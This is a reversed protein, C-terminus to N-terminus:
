FPTGPTFHIEEVPAAENALRSETAFQTENWAVDFLNQVIIGARLRKTIDYSVNLDAVFYGEAIISNDENAPRDAIYKYGMSANFGKYDKLVLSGNSTWKPALPIFDEGDVENIARAHAYNLNANLFVYDGLQYQFGYDFGYRRTEGSPEVIGADGVYVFEQELYLHWLAGNMVLRDTLKTVFGLDSNFSRPLIDDVEGALVVRTDNSHTGIGNNLYVNFKPSVEYSLKLKPLLVGATTSSTEFPTLLSNRYTFDFREYRLGADIKFKNFDVSLGSFVSFNTETVDGLQIAELLDRRNATRSLESGNTNDNRVAVGAIFQSKKNSIFFDNVYTAKAGYLSRSERQRIQDGNIPDELFFTFNSFLLFDYNSFYAQTYLHETESLEKGYEVNINTRSTEGGETDDIAGFRSIIGADVARQPIQGSADWKSDFHSATLKFVNGTGNDVLMKGFLNVRHFNQPSEFPGDFTLFETAVYASTSKNEVVQAMALLRQHNFDGIETQIINESLVDRTKFAVNGATAFNGVGVDYSGKGFDLTNITEPIVFHLDAYGQGHAHSVMNVPMGDVNIAIDTGHDIDFGRLFIQEAKGGGAHQGIILGPVVELLQQTNNVPRLALNVNVLNSLNDVDNSLMVADLDVSSEVMVINLFVQPDTVIIEQLIYSVHSFVLEDGNDIDEIVFYGLANTHTHNDTGKQLVYVDKLPQNKSDLVRGKITHAHALAASFFMIAAVVAKMLPVKISYM